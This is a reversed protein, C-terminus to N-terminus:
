VLLVMLPLHQFYILVMLTLAALYHNSDLQFNQQYVLPVEDLLPVENLLVQPLVQVLVLLIREQPARVV